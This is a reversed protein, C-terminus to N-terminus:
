SIYNKLNDYMLRFLRENNKDSIFSNHPSIFVNKMSWLPSNSELPEQEFVDLAVGRFKGTNLADILATEQIVAGRSINIIVADQRMSNLREKNILYRTQGTLPLTLVIIDSLSLAKDIDNIHFFRDVYDEKIEFIDIGLVKVGFAKLRRAVEKGVSGMGVVSATRGSLEMINREKLWKRNNQAQMFHLSDKYIELIKLLAWEAMPISYVGRANHLDIEHSKIYDLPVRDLGASTLQIFKLSKFDEIKNYLFLNNCVVCDITSTDIELPVREDQVFLTKYGLAQFSEIQGSTFSYAGTLLLNM